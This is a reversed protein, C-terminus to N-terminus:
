FIIDLAPAVEGGFEYQNPRSFLFEPKTYDEPDLNIEEKLERAVAEELAEPGDCFGGPAGLRGKGPDIARELVLLENKDNVLIVAVAPSANAFIRHGNACMYEPGAKYELRGGCRRCFNM